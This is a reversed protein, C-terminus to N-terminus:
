GNLIERIRKKEKEIQKDISVIMSNYRDIVDNDHSGERELEAAKQVSKKWDYLNSLFISNFDCRSM